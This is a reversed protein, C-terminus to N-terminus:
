CIRPLQEGTLMDLIRRSGFATEILVRPRRTELPAENFVEGIIQAESGYCSERLVELAREAESEPVVVVIKGENAVQLVDYGLIDCAGRVANNVPIEAEYVLLDLGSCEAFENLTSALGGRTPDRMVRLHPCSKVLKYMMHNLPAVDSVIDASLGLSSRTTMISMGHDGLTGSLLIKDGPRMTHAGLASQEAPIFGIGTTNIFIKDAQGKGVVKTDGTVLLVGAEKATAAMSEVVTRLDELAFGEELIFGVSLAHVQAGSSAVDNVTGCVALRGIDGGPFKWPSVVFSDTSFAIKAGVPLDPSLCAADNDWDLGLEEFNSAFVENIIQRMMTGGSGHGLLIQTDAIM